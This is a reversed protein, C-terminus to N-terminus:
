SNSWDGSEMHGGPVLGLARAIGLMRTRKDAITLGAFEGPKGTEEREVFMGLHLGLLHLAKNAGAFDPKAQAKAEIVVAILQEVLWETTLAVRHTSLSRMNQVLAKLEAVRAKITDKGNLRSANGSNTKYGASQFAAAITEGKAIEHAFIEHRPNNLV